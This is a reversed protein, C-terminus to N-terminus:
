NYNKKTKYNKANTLNNYKKFAKKVNHNNNNIIDM